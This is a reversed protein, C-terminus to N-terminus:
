AVLGYHGDLSLAARRCKGSVGIISERSGSALHWYHVRYDVGVSLARRGDRAVAICRTALADHDGCSEGDISRRLQPTPNKMEWVQMTGRPSRTACVATSGDVTVDCAYGSNTNPVPPVGPREESSDTISWFYGGDDGFSLCRDNATVSVSRVKGAHQRYVQLPAGTKRFDYVYVVKGAAAIGYRPTMAVSSIRTDDGDSADLFWSLRAESRGIDWLKLQGSEDASLCSRDIQTEDRGIAVKVLGKHGEGRAIHKGRLLDWVLISGDASGSVSRKGDYNIVIDTVAYTHGTLTNVYEGFRTGPMLSVLEIQGVSQFDKTKPHYHYPSTLQEFDISAPSPVAPAESAGSAERQALIGGISPRGSVTPPKYSSSLATMNEAHAVTSGFKFHHSATTVSDNIEYPAPGPLKPKADLARSYSMHVIDPSLDQHNTDRRVYKPILNVGPAKPADQQRGSSKLHLPPTASAMESDVCRLFSAAATAEPLKEEVWGSSIILPSM